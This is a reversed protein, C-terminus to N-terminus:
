VSLTSNIDLCFRTYQCLETIYADADMKYKHFCRTKEWKRIDDEEFELGLAEKVDAYIITELDDMIPLEICANEDYGMYQLVRHSIERSMESTIHNIDCFLKKKRQQLLIYDFIKVDWELERKNKKKVFSDWMDIIEARTYVGGEIIYSKIEEVSKGKQLWLVINKDLFYPSFSGPRLQQTKMDLQPFLYKPMGYLNPVSIADCTKCIYSLLFESAFQEGYMNNKRISQHLFLDCHQLVNEYKKPLNQMECIAPFPYFGYKLAFEKHGELYQRIAGMHCNGYVIAMKKDFIQYPVFDTFECYGMQMLQERIEMYCACTVVIFYEKLAKPKRIQYGLLEGEKKNDWFCRINVKNYYQYVFKEGTKGAGFVVIKRDYM